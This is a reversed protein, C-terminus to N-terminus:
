KHYKNTTYLFGVTGMAKSGTQSNLRPANERVARDYSFILTM